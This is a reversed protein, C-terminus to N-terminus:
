SETETKNLIDYNLSNAMASQNFIVGKRYRTEFQHLNDPLDFACIFTECRSEVEILLTEIPVLSLNVSTEPM